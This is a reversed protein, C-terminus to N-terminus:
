GLDLLLLSSFARMGFVKTSVFVLNNQRGKCRQQIGLCQHLSPKLGGCERGNPENNTLLPLTHYHTGDIYLAPTMPSIVKRWRSQSM